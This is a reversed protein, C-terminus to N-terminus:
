SSIKPMLVFSFIIQLTLLVWKQSDFHERQKPGFSVLYYATGFGFWHFKLSEPGIGLFGSSVSGSSGWSGDLVQQDLLVQNLPM